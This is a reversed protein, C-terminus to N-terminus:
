NIFSYEMQLHDSNYTGNAIAITDEVIVREEDTPIMFVKIKSNDASIESDGSGNDMVKAADNRVPDLIIGLEELGSTMMARLVPNNEGVGATFAIADVRGLVAMYNGIYQKIRYAEMELALKCDPEADMREIVDRLDQWHVTVGRFGSKKNLIDLVEADSLGLQEKVYFPVAPDLDGCRSGMMLGPIPTMGLSTDVSIGNKIACASAGSGIHMIIMNCQDAPKGLQLAVRKSVYLHSTGHFGYRRVGLDTYWSKPVAYRNAYDPMTQHFATDFVAVQAASPILQKAAMICALIPPNHLPALPLLAELEKIVEDTIEVSNKFKEGGHVVRHGAASIDSLNIGGSQLMSIVLDLAQAHNDCKQDRHEKPRDDAYKQDNYSDPLGIKQVNGGVIFAKTDANYIQYKLGASGANLALIYSM